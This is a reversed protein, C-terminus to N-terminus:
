SGNYSFNPHNDLFKEVIATLEDTLDYVEWAFKFGDEYKHTVANLIMSRLEINIAETKTMSPM